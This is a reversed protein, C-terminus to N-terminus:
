IDFRLPLIVGVMKRREFCKGELKFFFYIKGMLPFWNKVVEKILKFSISSKM